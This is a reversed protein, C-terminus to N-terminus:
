RVVDSFCLRNMLDDVAQGM